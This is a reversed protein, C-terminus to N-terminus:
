VTAALVALALPAVLATATAAVARGWTWGHVSRVGVLLLAVAWLFFADTLLDFVGGAVGTDGGGTRFWDGGYLSLKLPWLVLSLAMPTAAFALLHRSRRYTGVSGFARVAFHLLAGVVFYGFAGYIMGFFFGWIATTAPDLGNGTADMLHAATGTTLVGAIGALIVVLLIPEAMDGAAEKSDDRLAVFVPRPRQLVLLLRLWWDRLEGEAADAPPSSAATM